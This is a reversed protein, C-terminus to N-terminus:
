PGAAPDARRAAWGACLLAPAGDARYPVADVVPPEYADPSGLVEAGSPHVWKVVSRMGDHCSFTAGRAPLGLLHDEDGLREPSGPRYACDDCMTPRTEQVAPVPAAQELDYVAAWCTCRDPGYVPAGYCCTGGGADPWDGSQSVHIVPIM